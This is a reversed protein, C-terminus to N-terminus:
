GFGAVPSSLLGRGDQRAWNGLQGIVEAERNSTKQDTPPLIIVTGDATYELMCDPHEDCLALFEPESLGPASFTAPLKNSSSSM